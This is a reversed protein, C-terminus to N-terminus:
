QVSFVRESGLRHALLGANCGTGTGIELVRHEDRLDLLELMRVM